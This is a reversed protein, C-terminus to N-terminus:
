HTRQPSTLTVYCTRLLSKEDSYSFQANHSLDSKYKQWTNIIHSLM